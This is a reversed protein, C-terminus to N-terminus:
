KRVADEVAQKLRARAADIAADINRLFAPKVFPRAGMRATGYELMRALQSNRTDVRFTKGVRRLRRNLATNGYKQRKGKVGVAHQAIGRPAQRRFAAIGAELQGTKGKPPEGPASPETSQKISARIDDRFVKAAAFNAARLGNQEVKPGINRLTKTLEALGTVKIIMM